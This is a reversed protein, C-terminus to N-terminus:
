VCAKYAYAAFMNEREEARRRKMVRQVSLNCLRDDHLDGNVHVVRHPSDVDDLLGFAVAVARHVAVGNPISLVSKWEPVKAVQGHENVWYDENFPRFGLRDSAPIMKPRSLSLPPNHTHRTYM